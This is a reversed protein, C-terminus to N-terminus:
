IITAAEASDVMAPSSLYIAEGGLKQALQRALTSSDHEHLTYPMSGVAQAVQVTAQLDPRIANIVEYTSRGLCIAMTLGHQLVHFGGNSSSRATTRGNSHIQVNNSCKCVAYCSFPFRDISTQDSSMTSVRQLLSYPDPLRTSM